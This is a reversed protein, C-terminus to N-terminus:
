NVPKASQANKRDLEVKTEIAIPCENTWHGQDKGHFYCFPMKKEEAGRKEEAKRTVTKAITGTKAAQGTMMALDTKAPLDTKAALDTKAIIEAVRTRTTGAKGHSRKPSVISLKTSSRSTLIGHSRTRGRM